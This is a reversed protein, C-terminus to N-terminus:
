LACDHKHNKANHGPMALKASALKVARFAPL